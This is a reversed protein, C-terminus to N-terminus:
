DKLIHARLHTAKPLRGDSTVAELDAKKSLLHLVQKVDEAEHIHLIHRSFPALTDSRTLSPPPPPPYRPQPDITLYASHSVIVCVCM